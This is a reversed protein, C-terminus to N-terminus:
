GVTLSFTRAVYIFELLAVGGIAAKAYGRFHQNGEKADNARFLLPLGGLFYWVITPITQSSSWFRLRHM